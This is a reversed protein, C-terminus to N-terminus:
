ASRPVTVVIQSAYGAREALAVIWGREMGALRMLRAMPPNEIGAIWRSVASQDAYHLEIAIAQKTWGAHEFARALLQGFARGAEADVLRKHLADGRMAVPKRKMGDLPAIGHSAM